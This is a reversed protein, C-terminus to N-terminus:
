DFLVCKRVKKLLRLNRKVRMKEPNLKARGPTVVNGFPFSGSLNPHLLQCQSSWRSSSPLLPSSLSTMGGVTLQDASSLDDPFVATTHKCTTEWPKQPAKAFRPGLSFWLHHINILLHHNTPTVKPLTSHFVCFNSFYFRALLNNVM